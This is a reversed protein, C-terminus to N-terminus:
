LQDLFWLREQAYSLPPGALAAALAGIGEEPERAGAGMREEIALALGALTPSEFIRRLPIEVGFARRVRSLVQTALLSHGGAEFFSDDPGIEPVKLVERWIAALREEVATRARQRPGGRGAEGEPAIRALSRRDVKGSPTLPLAPLVAFAAPVMYEPLRERLYRRLEAVGAEPAVVYAVLRTGAGSEGPVALVAAARVEPHGALVAEIEGPEVRFGRVKVQQDARGLYGIEGSPLFRALDGSRYLRGGPEGATPDPLFREATLEPRGLYGRALGAGNRGGVYLEGPVGAPVPEGPVPSLRDLLLIRLNPLPRGIPPLAPWGTPPGALTHATVAHAETPGYHNDLRSGPMKRFLEALSGTVQLQEGATMVERLPPVGDDPDAAVVEAIQQLAVFPLFLREVRRERLLRLLAPADRRLEDSVLVLCGGGGWTSLMEQFSVDFSLSAFQLTRRGWPAAGLQWAVMNALPRHPMAVGKPRGTSGSTYLVYALHDGSVLVEPRTASRAARQASIVAAEADLLVLPVGSEEIGAPLRGLLSTTTVLAALRADEVVIALRDPPYGPDLPVYAGGAKLVALVAVPVALSRELCIGVASEPGVGLAQLHHALRNAREEVEAYTLVEGDMEVAPAWPSREAQAEFFAHVREIGVVQAPGENWRLLEEREAEGLLPLATLRLGPAAAAGALLNGLHALMRAATAEEFLDRSYELALALGKGIGEMPTTAQLLLDFRAVAEEQPLPRVALGPLRLAGLVAEQLVLMVQFLPTHALSREPSLEEVLREFPLDQHAHAAFLSERVQGLLAGFTPDGALETRLVLTNVFFGILPEVERRTRNAIPSGVLVDEQGAYRALLCSFGALLTMHLTAGRSRGLRALAEGAAGPLASRVRGARGSPVAPRPHDAPLDLVEPAGALRERWWGLQAALAEGALWGRQWVAYDAYQVPLEPLPSPRGASYAAYLTELERVLVGVSWGDSVVHHMTLLARHAEPGFRLLATRLLPGRALDFPRRAEERTLRGAETELATEPLGALDVLPVAWREPEPPMPAIVQAPRDEEEPQLFTTRLAEHRRVIEGLSAAFAGRDLRGELDFAGPMNYSPLGPELQDLFWLREQAFSLPL